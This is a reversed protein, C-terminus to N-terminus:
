WPLCSTPACDKARAYASALYAVKAALPHISAPLTHPTISLLTPLPLGPCLVAMMLEDLLPSGPTLGFSYDLQARYLPSSGPLRPQAEGSDVHFVHAIFEHKWSECPM